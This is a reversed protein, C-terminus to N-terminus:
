NCFLVPYKRFILFLNLNNEFDAVNNPLYPLTTLPQYCPVTYPLVLHVMCFLVKDPSERRAVSLHEWSRIPERCEGQDGDEGHHSTNRVPKAGGRLRLSMRKIFVLCVVHEDGRARRGINNVADIRPTEIFTLFM